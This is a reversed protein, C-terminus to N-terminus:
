TIVCSELDDDQGPLINTVGFQAAIAGHFMKGDDPLNLSTTGKM